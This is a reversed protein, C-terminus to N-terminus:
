SPMTSQSFTALRRHFGKAIICSQVVLSWAPAIDIEVSSSIKCQVALNSIKSEQRYNTELALQLMIGAYLDYFLVNQFIKSNNM